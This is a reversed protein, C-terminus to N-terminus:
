EHIKVGDGVETDHVTVYERVEADPVPDPVSPSAVGTRRDSSTEPADAYRAPPTSPLGQWQRGFTKGSNARLIPM